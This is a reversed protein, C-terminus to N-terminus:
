GRPSDEEEELIDELIRSMSAIADSEVKIRALDFRSQEVQDLMEKLSRQNENAVPRTNDPQDPRSMTILTLPLEEEIIRREHTIKGPGHSMRDRLLGQGSWFANGSIRVM